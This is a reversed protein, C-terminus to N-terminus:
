AQLGLVRPPQRPCILLDPTLVVRGVHYFGLEVLVIFILRAHHHTGTNGAVQSASALSDSSGPLCLNCHASVTGDYELRPSLAVRQLGLYAPSPPPFVSGLLELSCYAIIAGSCELRPSLTLSQRIRITLRKYVTKPRAHHSMSTIRASESASAPPDSPTLPKLGAQGIHHIGTEVLFVFILWTHQHMGIIGAVQSASAPSDSSDLLCLNCHASIGGSYEMRLLEVGAQGVHHFRMEVLFVFNAPCPPVHRYDWSSPLSFCSFQKFRPPPQLSGLDCCQVGAQAVLTFSRKANEIIYVTSKNVENDARHRLWDEYGGTIGASQSASTPLHGSTLLELGAQGFHHFGTKSGLLRLICHASIAGSCELRPLLTLGQKIATVTIVFFLPLGSTVPSTPTDVTVGTIGAGQSASAPLDGSTLCELGTHSVHCFGTEVLFVFNLWTHYCVGTIEAVRAASVPSDSSVPLCLNCHASIEGSCELGPLLTVALSRRLNPTQSWGPWCPLVGDGNFICFILWSHHHAGTIGAIPLSLSSFQKFGPPLTQLSSLNHWQMGAQTVSFVRNESSNKNGVSQSIGPLPAVRTALAVRKALAATKGTGWRPAERHLTYPVSPNPQDWGWLSFLLQFCQPSLTGCCACRVWSPGARHPVPM